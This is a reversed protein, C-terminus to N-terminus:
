TSRSSRRVKRPSFIEAPGAYSAPRPRLSRLIDQGGEGHRTRCLQNWSKGHHSTDFSYIGLAQGDWYVELGALTAPEELDIELWSRTSSESIEDLARVPVGGSGTILWQKKHPVKVSSEKGSRPGHFPWIEARTLGDDADDNWAKLDTDVM